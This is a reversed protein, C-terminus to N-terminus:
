PNEDARKQLDMAEEYLAEITEDPFVDFNRAALQMAQASQEFSKALFRRKFEITKEEGTNEVPYEKNVQSIWERIDITENSPAALLSGSEEACNDIKDRLSKERETM